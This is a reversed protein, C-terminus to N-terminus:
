QLTFSAKDNAQTYDRVKIPQQNLNMSVNSATELQVSFPLQGSLHHGGRGQQGQLLVKGNVDVINVVAPAQIWVDLTSLKADTQVPNTQITPMQPTNTAPTSSVVNITSGTNSLSAGTLQEQPTIEQITEQPQNDNHAKNVTKFIFIALGLAVIAGVIIFWNIKIVHRSDRQLTGMPQLPANQEFSEYKQRLATPYQADFSQSIIQADIGLFKGYNVAFGRAFTTQPLSEFDGSELAILHRKLIHTQEAVEDLSLNKKERMQKLRQGLPHSTDVAPSQNSKQNSM